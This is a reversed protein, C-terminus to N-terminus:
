FPAVEDDDVKVFGEPIEIEPAKGGKGETKDMPSLVVSDKMEGGVMVKVKDVKACGGIWTDTENGWAACLNTRSLKNLSMDKDEGGFAVTLVFQKVPNGDPHKFTQSEVWEGGTQIVLVDGSNLDASKVWSKGSSLKVM